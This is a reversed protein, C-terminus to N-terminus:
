RRSGYEPMKIRGDFLLEALLSELIGYAEEDNQPVDITDRLRILAAIKPTADTVSVATNFLAKHKDILRLVATKYKGREVSAVREEYTSM